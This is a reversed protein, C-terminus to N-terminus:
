AFHCAASHGASIGRLQPEIVGCDDRARPCRSFFRCGVHPVLGDDSVDAEFGEEDYVRKRGFVPASELLMKTYPHVPNQYLDEKRAMEVVKGLYMVAVRDAIFRVVELDHSIFLYTLGRQQRLDILLNIIQAQVSVDLASVAEDCVVVDPGAILARAICIRQRQGGSFQHPFKFLDDARMGCSELMAVSRLLMDSKSQTLRHARLPEGVIGAVTMRPDLSGYPDQFVIGTRRRIERQKKYDRNRVPEGSLLITGETEPLLGIVVRAVTSKGCGSEGVIGLTEGRPILFDVGDVARLMPHNGHQSFYKKVGHAEVIVDPREGEGFIRDWMAAKQELKQGFTEMKREFAGAGSEITNELVDMRHELRKEMDELSHELKKEMGEISHELKEGSANMKKIFKQIRGNFTPTNKM